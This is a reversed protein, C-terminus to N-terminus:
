SSRVADGKATKQNHAPSTQKMRAEMYQQCDRMGKLVHKEVTSVSIGLKDSIDKYSMRYIMRLTFAQRCKPPLSLVAECFLRYEQKSSLRQDALPERSELTMQDLDLGNEFKVIKKRRLAKMALNHGIRFLFAKPSRIAEPNKANHFKLFAEQTLEEAENESQLFNYVYGKLSQSHERYLGEVLSNNHQLNKNNDKM